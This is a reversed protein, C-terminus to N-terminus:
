TTDIKYRLGLSYVQLNVPELGSTQKVGIRLRWFKSCNAIANFSIEPITNSATTTTATDTINGTISDYTTWAGGSDSYQLSIIWTGDTGINAWHYLKYVIADTGDPINIYIDAYVYSTSSTNCGICENNSSWSWGSGLIEKGYISIFTYKHNTNVLYNSHSHSDDLVTANLTVDGSGDFSVNGTLDTGLTLKISSDWKSSTSANGSLSGTFTTATVTSFSPTSSTTLSQDLVGLYGWQTNSITVTGINEVQQIEATTLNKLEDPFGDVDTKLAAVDVGDVTGTLTINGNIDINGGFSSTSGVTLIGSLNVDGSSSTIDFYSGVSFNGIASLTGGVFTNGEITATGGISTNNDITATGSVGLNNLM